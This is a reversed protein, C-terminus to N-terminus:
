RMLEKVKAQIAETWIEYGKENPHLLDPMIERSLTGDPQLFKPGIDMFFVTKDDAFGKIIANTAENQQRMRDENNAGRPFIALLLIKATPCKAKLKGLIAKVGDATQQATCQYVAGDLEKQARGQHGTNNTGIMLVIAKPKLGDFNGHDLRWLVHETRDGGIGFNAAKMPAWCKEWIAKGKAGDWGHTISDGLFVLQAEGKKSIANFSEHRKETGPHLVPMIAYNLTTDASAIGAMCLLTITLHRTNMITSLAAISTPAAREPLRKRLASGVSWEAMSGGNEMTAIDPHYLTLASKRGVIKINDKVFVMIDDTTVRTM